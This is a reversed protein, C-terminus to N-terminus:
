LTCPNVLRQLLIRQSPAIERHRQGECDAITQLWCTAADHASQARFSQKLANFLDANAEHTIYTKKQMTCNVLEPVSWAGSEARFLVGDSTSDTLRTM